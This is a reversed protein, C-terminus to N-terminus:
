SGKTIGRIAAASFKVIHEIIDDANKAKTLKIYYDMFLLPHFFLSEISFTVLLAEELDLGPELQVMLASIRHYFNKKLDEVIPEPDVHRNLVERIMLEIIRGRRNQQEAAKLPPTIWARIFAELSPNPGTMLAEVTHLCEDIVKSLQRRFMETYLPQKGGFHYNVAAVNCGAEATLERVSTREFGQRCFLIEAADLLRERTDDRPGKGAATEELDQVHETM